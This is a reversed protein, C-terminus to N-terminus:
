IAEDWRGDLYAWAALDARAIRVFRALGYRESWEKLQRWSERAQDLEGYFHFESTLNAYANGVMDFDQAARAVALGETSQHIGGSVGLGGPATGIVILLRARQTEM